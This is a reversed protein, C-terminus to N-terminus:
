HKISNALNLMLNQLCSPTWNFILNGSSFLQLKLSLAFLCSTWSDSGHGNSFGTQNRETARLENKQCWRKQAIIWNLSNKILNQCLRNVLQWSFWRMISQQPLKKYYLLQSAATSNLAWLSLDILFLRIINKAASLQAWTTGTTLTKTVLSIVSTKSESSHVNAQM